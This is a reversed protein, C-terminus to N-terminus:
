GTTMFDEDITMISVTPRKATPEDSQALAPGGFVLLGAVTFAAVLPAASHGFSSFTSKMDKEKGQPGDNEFYAGAALLRRGFCLITLM